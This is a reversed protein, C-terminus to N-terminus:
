NDPSRENASNPEDRWAQVREECLHTNKVRRKIDAKKARKRNTKLYIVMKVLRKRNAWGQRKKRKIKAYIDLM